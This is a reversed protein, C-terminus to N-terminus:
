HNASVQVYFAGLSNSCSTEEVDLVDMTQNNNYSRINEPLYDVPIRMM